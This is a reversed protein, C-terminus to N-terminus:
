EDTDGEPSFVYPTEISTIASPVCKIPGRADCGRWFVGDFLAVIVPRRMMTVVAVTGPLISRTNPQDCCGNMHSYRIGDDTNTHCGCSCGAEPPLVRTPPTDSTASQYAAISRMVEGDPDLQQTPDSLLSDFTPPNPQSPVKAPCPGPALPQHCSGCIYYDHKPHGVIPGHPQFRGADSM